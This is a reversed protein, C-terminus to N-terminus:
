CFMAMYSKKFM